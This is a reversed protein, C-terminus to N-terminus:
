HGSLDLPIRKEVTILGFIRTEEVKTTQNLQDSRQQKYFDYTYGGGNEIILYIIDTEQDKSPLRGYKGQGYWSYLYDWLKSINLPVTITHVTFLNGSSKNYTYDIVALTDKLQIGRQSDLLKKRPNPIYRNCAIINVAISTFIIILALRTKNNRIIEYLYAGAIIILPTNTGILAYETFIVRAKFLFNPFTALSWVALFVWPNKSINNEKIKRILFVALLIMFVGAVFGNLPFFVNTFERFVAEIYISLYKFFGTYDTDQMGVFSLFSRSMLFNHRLEFIPYTILPLIFAIVSLVTTKIKLKNNNYILFIVSIAIINILFLLDFTAALSLFLFSIPLYKQNEKVSKYLYFYTLLIFPLGVSANAIWVSYSVVEFSFTFIIASITGITKNFLKKGFLYVIPICCLNSFLIFLTVWAPNKGFLFIIPGILYYYVPSHFIGDIESMPGLLTIKKEFFINGATIFDNAQEHGFSLSGPWFKLRLLAGLFLLILIIFFVKYDKKM